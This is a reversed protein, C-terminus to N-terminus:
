GVGPHRACALAREGDADRRTMASLLEGLQPLQQPGRADRGGPRHDLVPRLGVRIAIEPAALEDLQLLRDLPGVRVENGDIVLEQRPLLAVQLRLELDRHDVPRRDDEVDEGRM